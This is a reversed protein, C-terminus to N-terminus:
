ESDEILLRTIGFEDTDLTDHPNRDKARVFWQYKGIENPLCMGSPDKFSHDKACKQDWQKYNVYWCTNQTEDKTAGCACYGTKDSYDKGLKNCNPTGDLNRLDHLKRPRVICNQEGRECYEWYGCVTLGQYNDWCDCYGFRDEYRTNEYCNVQRNHLKYTQNPSREIELARRSEDWFIFKCAEDDCECFGWEDQYDTGNKDWCLNLSRAEPIELDRREDWYHWTCVDDNCQCYGWDDQYDTGNVEYCSM